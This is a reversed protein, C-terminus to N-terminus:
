RRMGPTCTCFLVPRKQMSPSVFCGFTCLLQRLLQAPELQVALLQQPGQGEGLM